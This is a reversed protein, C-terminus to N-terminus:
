GPLACSCWVGAGASSFQPRGGYNGRLGFASTIGTDTLNQVHHGSEHSLLTLVVNVADPDVIGSSITLANNTSCYGTVAYFVNLGACFETGPADVFKLTPPGIPSGANPSSHPAVHM